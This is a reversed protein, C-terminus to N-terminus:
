QATVVSDPSLPIYTMYVTLTGTSTASSTLEIMGIPIILGYSVDTGMAVVVGNTTVTLDAALVGDWSYVTGIADANIELATGDTGFATDTAPATPDVNYGILTSQTQITGTVYTVIETLKIPGGTVAFLNNAGAALSALDKSISKEMATTDAIITDLDTHALDLSAKINDDQAAGTAPGTFNGIRMRYDTVKKAYVPSVLCVLLLALALLAAALVAALGIRKKM